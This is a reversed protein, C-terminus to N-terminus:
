SIIYKFGVFLASIGLVVSLILYLVANFINNAEIMRFMELSFTSFTTFGGCIGVTFLLKLEYSSWNTKATFFGLLLSGLVNVILTALPFPSNFYKLTVVSILYRLISGLGGGLGIYVLTKLM